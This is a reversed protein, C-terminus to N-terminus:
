WVVATYQSVQTSWHCDGQCGPQQGAAHARPAECCGEPPLRPHDSEAAGGSFHQCMCVRACRCQSEAVTYLVHCWSYLSVQKLGGTSYEYSLLDPMIYAYMPESLSFLNIIDAIMRLLKVAEILTNLTFDCM